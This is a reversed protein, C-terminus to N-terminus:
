KVKVKSFVFNDMVGNSHITLLILGMAVPMCLEQIPDSLGLLM